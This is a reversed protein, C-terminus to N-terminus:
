RQKRGLAVFVNIFECIGGCVHKSVCMPERGIDQVSKKGRDENDEQQTYEPYQSDWSSVISWEASGNKYRWM